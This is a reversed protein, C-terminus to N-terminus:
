SPVTRSKFRIPSANLTLFSVFYGRDKKDLRIDFRKTIGDMFEVYCKALALLADAYAEHSHGKQLTSELTSLTKKSLKIEIRRNGEPRLSRAQCALKVLVNNRMYEIADRAEWLEGRKIKSDTYVCWAWFRDEFYQLREETPSYPKKTKQCLCRWEKLTDSTDLLILVDKDENRPILENKVRYQYDVHVPYDARYFTIFQHPDGLHTAPFDSIVDGVQRRLQAHDLEIRSRIDAPVLIYFDLDSYRDPNGCAFSGSLYIGLIRKDQQLLNLASEAIAKHSDFRSLATPLAARRSINPAKHRTREISIKGTRKAM